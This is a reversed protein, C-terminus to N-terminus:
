LLEMQENARRFSASSLKPRSGIGARRCSIEFLTAIQEAFIGTGSM